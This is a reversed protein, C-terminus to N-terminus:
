KRCSVEADAIKAGCAAGATLAVVAGAVTTAALAGGVAGACAAVTVTVDRGCKKWSPKTAGQVLRDVTPSPSPQPESPAAPESRLSASPTSADAPRCEGRANDYYGTSSPHNSRVPNPM